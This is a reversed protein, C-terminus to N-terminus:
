GPEPLYLLVQALYRTGGSDPVTDVCWREERLTTLAGDGHGHERLWVRAQQRGKGQADTRAAEESFTLNSAAVFYAGRAAVPVAETWPGCQAGAYPNGGLRFAFPGSVDTVKRWAGDGDPRWLSGHGTLVEAVYREGCADPQEACCAALADPDAIAAVRRRGLEVQGWAVGPEASEPYGRKAAVAPHAAFVPQRMPRAPLDVREFHASCATQRAADPDVPWLDPDVFGGLAQTRGPPLLHANHYRLGALPLDDPVLGAPARKPGCGGVILALLLARVM